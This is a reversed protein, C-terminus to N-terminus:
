VKSINISVDDCYRDDSINVDSGSSRRVMVYAAMCSSSCRAELYWSGSALLVTSSMALVSGVEIASERRVYSRKEGEDWGEWGDCCFFFFDLVLLGLYEVEEMVDSSGWWVRM